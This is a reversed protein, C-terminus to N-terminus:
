GDLAKKRLEEAPISCLQKCGRWTNRIKYFLAIREKM